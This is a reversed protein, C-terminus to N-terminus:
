GLIYVARVLRTKVPFIQLCPPNTAARRKRREIIMWSNLWEAAGDNGRHFGSRELFELCPKNKATPRYIPTLLAAGNARAERILIAFTADKVKKGFVRCSLLFDTIYTHEGVVKLSALGRLGYDGFRDSM